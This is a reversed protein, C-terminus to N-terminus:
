TSLSGRFNAFSNGFRRSHSKQRARWALVLFRMREWWTAYHSGFYFSHTNCRMHLFEPVIQLEWHWWNVRAYVNSRKHFTDFEVKFCPTIHKRKSTMSQILVKMQNFKAQKQNVFVAKMTQKSSKPFLIRMQEIKAIKIINEFIKTSNQSFTSPTELFKWVTGSDVDEMASM